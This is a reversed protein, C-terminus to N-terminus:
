QPLLLLLLQCGVKQMLLAIVYFSCCDVLVLTVKLLRTFVDQSNECRCTCAESLSFM